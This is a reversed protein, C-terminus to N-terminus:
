EKPEETFEPKAFHVVSQPYPISINNERFVKLIGFNLLSKLAGMRDAFDHTWVLLSFKLSNDAFESLRVTPPPDELVGEVESAVQLLLKKIVEPDSDYSVGVTVRTRVRHGSYSWNIVQKSIFDSNPVIISINDNTLITTARVSINLVNGSVEGVEIRDGLQIPKELLIIVGSIFNSFITQMGFGIGIGIAGTLVTFISLDLGTTQLIGVLGFALIAYYSLTIVVRWNSTNSDPKNSIKKLLWKKVRAIVLLFVMILLLNLIIMWATISTKGM